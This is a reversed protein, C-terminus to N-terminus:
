REAVEVLGARAIYEDFLTDQLGSLCHVLRALRLDFSPAGFLDARCDAPGLRGGDIPFVARCGDVNLQMRREILMGCWLVDAFSRSVAPNCFRRNWGLDLDLEEDDVDLGFAIGLSVEPIFCARSAHEAPRGGGFSHLYTPGLPAVYWDSPSSAVIISRIEDLTM